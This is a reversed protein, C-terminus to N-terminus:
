RRVLIAREASMNVGTAKFGGDAIARGLSNNTSYWYPPYQRASAPLPRGLVDELDSFSVPLQDVSQARLWDVLPRYRTVRDAAPATDEASEDAPVREREAQELPAEPLDRDPRPWIDLIVDTLVATRADIAAEDWVDPHEAVIDANIKLTSHRLLEDRKGTGGLGRAQTEAVTWPRNSLSPNLKQNVLTLNGLRHVAGDRRLEDAESEAGAQWHERWARPMIHEVTLNRPCRDSESKGTRRQDEVAELLMRLRARLLLRFIPALALAERVQPDSPWFRSDAKQRALFAETVEGARAPSSRTLERLLDIVVRNFDKGTLRCMARRVLWSELAALALDRQQSSLDTEPWRLLWLLVPTVAASDMATVVRYYFRGPLSEAPLRSLSAYLEADSALGSLLDEIGPQERLVHDRFEVFIRDTPIERGLKMALWYNVFIDIRPVYQRGRAIRQRWYDTDLQRWYREYLGPVDCGQDQAVQFVLNKILDAALLQVGRHNLTEFIVQANDGPELDIVVVKLLDRLTRTLANLKGAVKDRDGSVDAWEEIVRVFFDHAQTVAAPALAPPVVTQNDMAARFADRDRNTPWVKFVEDPHQAIAPENLILVRLAHADMAAGHREIVWQAADLLLQLTTLRQQGDIIHRVAIFGAPIQPQDLVIAGLFHPPIQESGAAEAADQLREAVVRVDSWLPEWQDERNWVYPRQFLPVVYRIHHGFIAAPTHTQAQM